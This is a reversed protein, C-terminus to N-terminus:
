TSQKSELYFSTQPHPSARELFVGRIYVSVLTLHSDEDNQVEPHKAFYPQEGPKRARELELKRTKIELAVATGYKEKLEKLTRYVHKGRKKWSATEM